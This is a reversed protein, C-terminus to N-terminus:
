YLAPGMSDNSMEDHNEFDTLRAFTSEAFSKQIAEKYYVFGDNNTVFAEVEEYTLQPNEACFKKFIQMFTENAKLAIKYGTPKDWIDALYKTTTAYSFAKKVESADSPNLRNLGPLLLDFGKSNGLYAMRKNVFFDEYRKDLPYRNDINAKHILTIPCYGAQPANKLIFQVAFRNRYADHHPINSLIREDLLFSFDFVSEENTDDLQEMNNLVKPAKLAYGVITEVYEQHNTIDKPARLFIAPNKMFANVLPSRQEVDGDKKNAYYIDQEYTREDKGLETSFWEDVPLLYSLMSSGHSVRDLALKKRETVREDSGKKTSTILAWLEDTTLEKTFRVRQQIFSLDQFIPHKVVKPNKHNIVSETIDSYGLLYNKVAQDKDRRGSKLYQDILNVLIAEASNTTWVISKAEVLDFIDILSESIGDVHSENVLSDAVWEDVGNKIIESKLLPLGHTVLYDKFGTESTFMKNLENNRDAQSILNILVSFNISDLKSVIHM